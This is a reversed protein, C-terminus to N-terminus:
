LSYYDTWTFGKQLDSGTDVLHQQTDAARWGTGHTQAWTCGNNFCAGASGEAM